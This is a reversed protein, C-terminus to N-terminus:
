RGVLRNALNEINERGKGYDLVTTRFRPQSAIHVEFKAEGTDVIKVTLVEGFSKWSGRVRAVILGLDENSTKVTAGFDKVAKLVKNFVVDSSGALMEITMEQWPSLDQGAIRQTERRQITSLLLAMLSGFFLGQLIGTRVGVAFGQDITNMLGM